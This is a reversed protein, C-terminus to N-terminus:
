DHWVGKNKGVVVEKRKVLADGYEKTNNADITGVLLHAPNICREDDCTHMVVGDLVGELAWVILRHAYEWVVQKQGREGMYYGLKVRVYAEILGRFGLCGLIGLVVLYAGGM